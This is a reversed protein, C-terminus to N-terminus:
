SPTEMLLSLIKMDITLSAEGGEYSARKNITFSTVKRFPSTNEIRNLFSGFDHYKCVLNLTIEKETYNLDTQFVSKSTDEMTMTNDRNVKVNYENGMDRLTDRFFEFESPNVLNKKYDQIKQNIAEIEKKTPELKVAIKQNDLVEKKIQSIKQELNFLANSDPGVFVLYSGAFLAIFVISILVILQIQDKTLNKLDNLNVNM